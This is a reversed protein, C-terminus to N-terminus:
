FVEGGDVCNSCGPGFDLIRTIKDIRRSVIKELRRIRRVRAMLFGQNAFDTIPLNARLQLYIVELRDLRELKVHETEFTSHLECNVKCKSQM